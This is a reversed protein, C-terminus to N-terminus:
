VAGLNWLWQHTLPMEESSDSLITLPWPGVSPTQSRQPPQCSPAAIIDAPLTPKYPKKAKNVHTSVSLKVKKKKPSQSSIWIPDGSTGTPTFPPQINLLSDPETRQTVNMNSVSPFGGPTTVAIPAAM